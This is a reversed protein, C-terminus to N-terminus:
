LGVKNRLSAVLNAFCLFYMVFVLLSSLLVLVAGLYVFRPM